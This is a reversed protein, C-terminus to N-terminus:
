SYGDEKEQRDREAKQQQRIVEDKRKRFPNKPKIKREKQGQGKIQREREKNRKEHTIEAKVEAGGHGTCNQLTHLVVSSM